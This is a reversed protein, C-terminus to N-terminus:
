NGCALSVWFQWLLQREIFQSRNRSLGYIDVGRQLDPQDIDSSSGICNTAVRQHARITYAFRTRYSGRELGPLAREQLNMMYQTKGVTPRIVGLM